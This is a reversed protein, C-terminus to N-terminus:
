SVEGPPLVGAIGCGNRDAVTQSIFNKGLKGLNGAAIGGFHEASGCSRVFIQPLDGAPGDLVGGSGIWLSAEM